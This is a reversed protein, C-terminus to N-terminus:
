FMPLGQPGQSWRTAVFGYSCCKALAYCSPLNIFKTIVTQLRTPYDLPENLHTHMDTRCRDGHLTHIEKLLLTAYQYAFHKQMAARPTGQEFELWM